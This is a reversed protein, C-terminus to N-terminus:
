DQGSGADGDDVWGLASSNAERGRGAAILLDAARLDDDGGIGANRAPDNVGAARGVHGQAVHRRASLVASGGGDNRAVVLDRKERRERGRAIKPDVGAGGGGELM